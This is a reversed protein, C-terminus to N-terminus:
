WVILEFNRLLHCFKVRSYAGATARFHVNIAQNTPIQYLQLTTFLALFKNVENVTEQVGVM